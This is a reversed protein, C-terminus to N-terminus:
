AELLWKSADDTRLWTTPTLHTHNTVGSDLAALTGNLKKVSSMKTANIRMNDAHACDFM